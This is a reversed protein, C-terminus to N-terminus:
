KAAGRTESFEPEKLARVHYARCVEPDRFIDSVVAHRERKGFASEHPGHVFVRACPPRPHRANPGRATGLFRDDAAIKNEEGVM